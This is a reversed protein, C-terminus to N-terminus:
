KCTMKRNALDCTAFKAGSTDKQTFTWHHAKKGPTAVTYGYKVANWLYSANPYPKYAPNMPQGDGKMLPGHPPIAYGKESDPISGGNGVVLQPAEGPIQVVQAVHVHSGVLLDYHGILGIGAATQDVSTWPAWDAAGTTEDLSDIGFMPRHTLLWSERGKKKASLNNAKEYATKQTTVWPTIDFNRGYASDVVVTQLTRNGDIPMEFSWSEDINTPVVGNVPACAAPGAKSVDFFLFYGNGGRNCAEHNGRVALVPASRLLPAMPIFVDAMWGYASDDFPSNLLPPPSTGCKAQAAPPCADERYYFDGTFLVVDAKEKAIARSNPALPWGATSTCDQQMKLTVRCGTDGMLVIKKYSSPLTAPVSMGDVKASKASAPLNAECARLESFAVGTSAGPVRKTMTLSKTAGSKKTVQVHPCGGGTPVVARVQLNSAAVSSPVILTYASIVGHPAAQAPVAGAAATSTLPMGLAVVSMATMLAFRRM